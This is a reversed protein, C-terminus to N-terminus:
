RVEIIQLFRQELDDTLTLHVLDKIEKLKEELTKIKNRAKIPCLVDEYCNYDEFDCQRNKTNCGCMTDIESM